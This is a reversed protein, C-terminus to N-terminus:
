KIKEDKVFGIPREKSKAEILSNIAEFVGRFREDYKKELKGLRKALDRNGSLVERLRVFARMIEINVQIAQPSHLVSSVMAIGQETFAYPAYRRGGPGARKLRHAKLNAFEEQNLQFMFDSPFRDINRKVNRVLIRTEVGYLRSLDEDIIIKQGRLLLIAQSITEHHILKKDDDSERM